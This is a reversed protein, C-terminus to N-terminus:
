AIKVGFGIFTGFRYALRTRKKLYLRRKAHYESVM